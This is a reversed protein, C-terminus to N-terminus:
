SVGREKTFHRKGRIWPVSINLMFVGTCNKWGGAQELFIDFVM